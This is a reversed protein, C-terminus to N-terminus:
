YDDCHLIIKLSFNPDDYLPTILISNSMDLLELFMRRNSGMFLAMQVYLEVIMSHSLTITIDAKIKKSFGVAYSALALATGELRCRPIMNFETITGNIGSNDAKYLIIDRAM